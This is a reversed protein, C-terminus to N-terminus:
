ATDLPSYILPRSRLIQNNSPIARQNRAISIAPNEIYKTIRTRQQRIHAKPWCPESLGAAAIPRSLYAHILFRCTVMIRRWQLFVILVENQVVSANQVVKEHASLNRRLNKSTCIRSTRPIYPTLKRCCSALASEEIAHCAKGQESVM